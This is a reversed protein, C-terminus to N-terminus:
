KLRFAEMKLGLTGVYHNRWGPVTYNKTLLGTTSSNSMLWVKDMAISVHGIIPYETASIVIDGGKIDDLLVTDFRDSTRLVKVMEATSTTGGIEFGFADYHIMNVTDACGYEDDARDLPSADTGLLSVATDLLIKWRPFLLANMAVRSLHGFNGVAPSIGRDKQFKVVADKTKQGFFGTPIFDGYQLQELARQLDMVQPGFSGISLDKTFTNM